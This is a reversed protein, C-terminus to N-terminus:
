SNESCYRNAAALQLRITELDGKTAICGKQVRVLGQKILVRM